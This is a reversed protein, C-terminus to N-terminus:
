QLMGGGEAVDGKNKEIFQYIGIQDPNLTLTLPNNKSHAKGTKTLVGVGVLDVIAAAKLTGRGAVASMVSQYTATYEPCDQLHTIINKRYDIDRKRESKEIKCQRLSALSEGLSFSTVIVADDQSATEANLVTAPIPTGIRTETQIVNHGDADYIVMNTDTQARLATSGLFGDFPDVLNVAKKSHVVGQFHVHKHERALATFADGAKQVESWDSSDSFRIFKFYTDIIVMRVNPLKALLEALGEIGQRYHPANDVVFHIKADNHPDYGLAHLHNDSHFLADELSVLVVEGQTTARGLFQQGEAIAVAEFRSLSSKGQKPKAGLLSLGGATFMGKVTWNIPVPKGDKFTSYPEYVKFSFKQNEEHVESATANTKSM